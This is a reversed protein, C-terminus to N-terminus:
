LLSLFHVSTAKFIDILLVVQVASVILCGWDSPHCTSLLDGLQPVTFM